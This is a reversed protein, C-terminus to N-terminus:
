CPPLILSTIIQLPIVSITHLNTANGRGDSSAEDITDTWLTSAVKGKPLLGPWCGCAFIKPSLLEWPTEEGWWFYLSALPCSSHAQFFEAQFNGLSLLCPFRVLDDKSINRMMSTTNEAEKLLPSITCKTLFLPPISSSLSSRYFTALTGDAHLTNCKKEKFMRMHFRQFLKEKPIKLPSISRSGVWTDWTKPDGTDVHVCCYVVAYLHTKSNWM